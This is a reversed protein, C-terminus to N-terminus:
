IRLYDTLSILTKRYCLFAKYLFSTDVLRRLLDSNDFLAFFRKGEM